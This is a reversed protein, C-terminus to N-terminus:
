KNKEVVIIDAETKDDDLVDYARIKVGGYISGLSAKKYAPDANEDLMYVAANDKVNFMDGNTLEVINSKFDKVEVFGSGSIESFNDNNKDGDTSITVSKVIGNSMNLEYVTGKLYGNATSAAPIDTLGKKGLWTIPRTATLTDFAPVMDGDGNLTTIAGNIVGYVNGSFGVDMPLVVATIVNNEVKYYAPTKVNKFKYVTDLRYDSAKKSFTMTGSYDKSKGYTYVVVDKAIDKGSYSTMTENFTGSTFTMSATDPVDKAKDQDTGQSPAAPEPNAAAIKDLANFDVQAAMWKTALNPMPTPINTLLNLETAKNIFNSPWSGGLTEDSYDAARLVMTILENMTVKNGPKFTRDPYGKIVKNDVAYKIYGEAWGYGSMDSFGSKEVPQTASGIVEVSPANMSKVIIVCAQARTLEADPHFSGDTDGTIIGKDVLASVAQEYSQGKVDSPVAAFVGTAATMTLILAIAITQILHKKM